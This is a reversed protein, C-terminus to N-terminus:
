NSSKIKEWLLEINNNHQSVIMENGTNLFSINSFKQGISFDKKVKEISSNNTFSLKIGQWLQRCYRNWEEFKCFENSAGHGSIVKSKNDRILIKEYLILWRDIDLDPTLGFQIWDTSFTDGTFLLGSEPIYVLIDGDTHAKGHYYLEFSTDGCNFKMQDTFTIDPLTLKYDNILDDIMILDSEIMSKKKLFDESGENLEKLQNRLREVRKNRREIFPELDNSFNKILKSANEHAIITSFSFVQNGNTHDFHGHTNIVYKIKEGPYDKEIEYKIERAATPSINTDIIVLGDSTKIVTLNVSLGNFQYATCNESVITKDTEIIGNANAISFLFLVICFIYKLNKYIM